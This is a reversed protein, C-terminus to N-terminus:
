GSRSNQQLFCITTGFVMNWNEDKINYVICHSHEFSLYMKEVIFGEETYLKKLGGKVERFIEGNILELSDKVRYTRVRKLSDKISIRKLYYFAPNSQEGFFVAYCLEDEHKPSCSFLLLICLYYIKNSLPMMYKNKNTLKQQM